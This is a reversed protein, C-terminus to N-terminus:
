FPIQCWAGAPSLDTFLRLEPPWLTFLGILVGLGLSMIVPFIWRVGHFPGSFQLPVWFGLCIVALYIVIDVWLAEGGLLIHYGYGLVLMLGCILTQTLLWPRMGGPRGRNLWAAALLYPWFIIKVHEWVSESIPSVLATVVNPMWQYFFHLASGLLITALGTLIIHRKGYYLAIM